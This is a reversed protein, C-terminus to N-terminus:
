RADLSSGAAAIQHHVQTAPACTVSIDRGEGQAERVSRVVVHAARRSMHPVDTLDVTLEGAMRGFTGLAQRITACADDDCPGDVHVRRISAEYSITTSM